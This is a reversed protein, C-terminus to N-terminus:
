LLPLFQSGAKWTTTPVTLTTTGAALSTVSTARSPFRSLVSQEEDGPTIQGNEWITRRGGAGRGLGLDRDDDDGHRGHEMLDVKLRHRSSAGATTSRGQALGDLRLLASRGSQLNGSSSYAHLRWDLAILIDLTAAHLSQGPWTSGGVHQVWWSKPPPQDTTYSV